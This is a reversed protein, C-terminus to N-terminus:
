QQDEELAPDDSSDESGEEPEEEEAMEQPTAIEEPEEPEITEEPEEVEVEEAEAEPAPEPEGEAEAPSEAPVIVEVAEEGATRTVLYRLVTENLRLLQEIENSKGPPLHLQFIVDRGELVKKIAYALKRLNKVEVDVVGGQRDAVLRTIQDVFDQIGDEDLEPRLVVYMEYRRLDGM